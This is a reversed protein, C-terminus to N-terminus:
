SYIKGRGLEDIDYETVLDMGHLRWMVYEEDTFYVYYVPAIHQLDKRAFQGIGAVVVPDYVQITLRMANCNRLPTGYWSWRPDTILVEHVAHIQM